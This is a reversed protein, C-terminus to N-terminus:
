EQEAEKNPRLHRADRRQDIMGMVIPVIPALVSLVVAWVSRMVTRIGMRKGMWLLFCVGQLMFAIRFVNMCLTGMFSGVGGQSLLALLWGLLLTGVAAGLRRPMYWQEMAPLLGKEGKKRRRWDPLVTCLLTTIATHYVLADCLMVPLTEELSVRLSYLMQLRTEDEIVINGMVRVAPVLAQTGELRILGMSYANLLLTNREPSADIMDCFAKALGVSVQGNLLQVLIFLGVSWTLLCLGAWLFPRMLPQKVPICAAALSGICWVEAVSVSAGPMVFGCCVGATLCVAATWFRGLRYETLAAAIPLLLMIEALFTVNYLASLVFLGMLAVPVIVATDTKRESM